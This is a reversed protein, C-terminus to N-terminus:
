SSARPYQVNVYALQEASIVPHTSSDLLEGDLTYTQIMDAQTDGASDWLTASLLIKSSSIPVLTMEYMQSFDVTALRRDKYQQDLVHLEITASGNERYVTEFGYIYGRPLVAMTAPLTYGTYGYYFNSFRNNDHAVMKISEKSTPTYTFYETGSKEFEWPNFSQIVEHALAVETTCYQCYIFSEGSEPDYTRESGDEDGGCFYVLHDETSVLGGIMTNPETSNKCLTSSIDIARSEGDSSLDFEILTTPEDDFADADTYYAKNNMVTFQGPCLSLSVLHTPQQDPSPTAPMSYIQSNSNDDACEVVYLTNGSVRYAHGYEKFQYFDIEQGGATFGVLSVQAASTETIWPNSPNVGKWREAYSIIADPDVPAPPPSYSIETTPKKASFWIAIFVGASALAVALVVSLVVWTKPRSPGSNSAQNSVKPSVWQTQDHGATSPTTPPNAPTPKDFTLANSKRVGPDSPKNAPSDSSGPPTNPPDESRFINPLDPRTYDWEPPKTAM